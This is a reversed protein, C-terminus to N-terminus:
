PGWDGSEDGSSSSPPNVAWEHPPVLRWFRIRTLAAFNYFVQQTLVITGDPARAVSLVEHWDRPPGDDHKGKGIDIGKRKGKGKGYRQRAAIISWINLTRRRRLPAALRPMLNVRNSRAFSGIAM